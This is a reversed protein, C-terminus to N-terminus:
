KSYIFIRLYLLKFIFWNIATPEMITIWSRDHRSLVNKFFFGFGSKNLNESDNNNIRKM